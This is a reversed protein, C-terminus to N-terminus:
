LVASLVSMIGLIFIMGLTIKKFHGESIRNGIFLGLFMGVGLAPLNIISKFVIERTLLGNFFFMPLSIFNLLLFYTTLTKRFIEKETDENSLLIIVPPGSLSVSGNLLGSFIGALIDGLVKIKVIVRIGFMMLISSILIVVGVVLKLISNDVFKLIYIGFITSALGSFALIIIRKKNYSGKLNKYLILSLLFSYLVLMPVFDKLPLFLGLLPVAILSFGFSTMGQITSALLIILFSFIITFM